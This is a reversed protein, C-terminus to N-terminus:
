AYISTKRIGSYGIAFICMKYRLSENQLVKPKNDFFSCMEARFLSMKILM